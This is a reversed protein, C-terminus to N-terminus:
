LSHYTPGQCRAMSRGWIASPHVAEFTSPLWSYVSYTAPLQCPTTRWSPPQSLYYSSRVTFIYWTILWEFINWVQVSGRIHDLCHFVSMLNPVHFTLLRYLAPESVATTLSNALYLNSKTLTCSTLPFFPACYSCPIIIKEICFLVFIMLQSCSKKYALSYYWCNLCLENTIPWQPLVM